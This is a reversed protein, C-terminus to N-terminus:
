SGAPEMGEFPRCVEDMEASHLHVKLMPNATSWDTKPDDRVLCLAQWAVPLEQLQDVSPLGEILVERGAYSGTAYGVFKAEPGRIHIRDTGPDLRTYSDLSVSFALWTSLGIVLVLATLMAIVTWKVKRKDLQQNEPNDM